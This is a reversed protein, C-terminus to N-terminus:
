EAPLDDEAFRQEKWPDAQNSYGFCEWFGPRDEAALEIARLWKVSKWAYLAPLVSRLPSGHTPELPEGNAGSALIASPDLLAPLPVNATYGAEGHMIAFRAEPLPAALDLLTRALVGSWRTDLVTWRTVCHLDGEQEIRPLDQFAEWDLRLEQRVLGFVRFDWTTPDFLPVEGQHLVPWRRAPHQGPPLPKGDPPEVVPKRVTRQRAHM